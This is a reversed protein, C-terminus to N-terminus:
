YLCKLVLWTQKSILLCMGLLCIDAKILLVSVLIWKFRIKKQVAVIVLMIEM